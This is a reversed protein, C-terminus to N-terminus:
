VSFIQLNLHQNFLIPPSQRSLYGLKWLAVNKMQQNESNLFKFM